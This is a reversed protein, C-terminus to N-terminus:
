CSSFGSTQYIYALTGAKAKSVTPPPRLLDAAIKPVQFDSDTRYDDFLKEADRITLYDPESSEKRFKAKWDMNLYVM